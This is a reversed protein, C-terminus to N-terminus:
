PHPRHALEGFEFTFPTGRVAALVSHIEYVEKESVDGIFRVTLHLNERAVWRAERLGNQLIALSDKTTGPLDIAIFLRPM